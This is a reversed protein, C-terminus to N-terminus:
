KAISSGGQFPKTPYHKVDNGGLGLNIDSGFTSCVQLPTAPGVKTKTYLKSSESVDNEDQVSMHEFRSELTRASM